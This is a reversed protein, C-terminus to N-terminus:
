GVGLEVFQFCESGRDYYAQLYAEFFNRQRSSCDIKGNDILSFCQVLYERFVREVVTRDFGHTIM